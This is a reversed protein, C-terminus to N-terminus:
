THNSPTTSSLTPHSNSTCPQNTQNYHTHLSHSGTSGASFLTLFSLHHWAAESLLLKKNSSYSCCFLQQHNSGTLVCWHRQRLARKVLIRIGVGTCWALGRRRRSEAQQIEHQALMFISSIHSIFILHWRSYRALVISEGWQAQLKCWRFSRKLRM